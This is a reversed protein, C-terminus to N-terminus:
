DGLVNEDYAQWPWQINDVEWLAFHAEERVAERLIGLAKINEEWPEQEQDYVEAM